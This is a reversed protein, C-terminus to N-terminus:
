TIDNINYHNALLCASLVETLRSDASIREKVPLSSISNLLNIVKNQDYFPIDKLLSSNFVEQMFKHLSVNAPPACFPQKTRNYLKEPIIDKVAERLIYKEVYNKIKLEQPLKMNFSVMKQDLFPVRGEVSYGMEIKDGITSLIYGPLTTNAFLYASVDSTNIMSELKSVGLEQIINKIADNGNMKQKFDETYLEAFEKGRGSYIKLLTSSHNKLYSAFKNVQQSESTTVLGAGIPNSRVKELLKSREEDNSNGSIIDERFFAYGGLLEDSGGGTLVVRNGSNHVLKSLLYLAVGHTNSIVSEGHWISADFNDAIDQDTVKVENYNAGVFKATDKAIDSENFIDDNFSITYADIPKNHIKAAMALVATSDIGGSLYCGVPVDANLRTRVSDEFIDRFKDIYEKESLNESLESDKTAFELDWYRQINFDKETAVIFHGPRLSFINNFCTRESQFISHNTYYITDANWESPVDFKLLAKIESALYLNNNHITYYLPKVGMQDRFAVLRKNREDWIIFAFEGRLYKHLDLGYEQYLAVVVESDSHTKFIYGKEKLDERIKDHDYIEGNVVAHVMGDQSVLPQSGGNLDIISLRVHGLAIKKNQHLWFTKDDPGRHNIVDLANNLYNLNVDANRKLVGVIGCM